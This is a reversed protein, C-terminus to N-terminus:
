KRYIDEEWVNELRRRDSIKRQSMIECIKTLSKRISFEGRSHDGLNSFPIEKSSHDSFLAFCKIKWTKFFNCSVQQFLVVSFNSFTTRDVTRRKFFFKLWLDQSRQHLFISSFSIIELLLFHFFFFHLYLNETVDLSTESSFLRSQFSPLLSLQFVFFQMWFPLFIELSFLFFFLPFINKPPLIKIVLYVFEDM